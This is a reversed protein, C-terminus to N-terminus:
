VYKVHNFGSCMDYKVHNFGFQVCTMCVNCSQIWVTCM